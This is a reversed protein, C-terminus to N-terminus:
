EKKKNGLGRKELDREIDKQHQDKETQEAKKRKDAEAKKREAELIEGKNEIGIKKAVLEMYTIEFILPAHPPIRQKMQNMGLEHYALYSPTIFTCKAGKKMLLLVEDLAQIAFKQAVPFEFLRGDDDSSGFVTDDLLKGVYSLAVVDGKQAFDGEGENSMTYWIGSYTRKMNTMKNKAVYEAIAKEDKQKQEFVPQKKDNEMEERNQVKLVKIIYRVTSGAKVTKPRSRKIAQFLMNEPIWVSVSDEQHLLLFIDELFGKDSKDYDDNSIEKVIPKKDFTSKLIADDQTRTQIHFTVYEKKVIRKHKGHHKHVQYHIQYYKGNLSVEIEQKHGHQAFLLCPSVWSVVTLLFLYSPLFFKM